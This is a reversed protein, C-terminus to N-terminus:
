HSQPAQAASIRRGAQYLFVGVGTAALTSASMLLSALILENALALSAGEIAATLLLIRAVLKLMRADVLSETPNHVWQILTHGRVKTCHWM